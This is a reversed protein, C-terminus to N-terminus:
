VNGVIVNLEYQLTFSIFDTILKDRRPFIFVAAVVAWRWRLRQHSDSQCAGIGRTVVRGGRICNM